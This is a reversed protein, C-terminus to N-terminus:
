IRPLILWLNRGGQIMFHMVRYRRRFPGSFCDSASPYHLARSRDDHTYGYYRSHRLRALRCLPDPVPGSHCRELILPTFGLFTTVSTLMIPRFRGKAGEIIATSAM